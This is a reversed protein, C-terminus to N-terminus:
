PESAVLIQPDIAKVYRAGLVSKVRHQEAHATLAGAAVGCMVLVAVYVVAAQPRNFVQAFAQLRHWWSAPQSNTELHAIRQWVGDQFRPPMAADLKWERLAESLPDEHKKLGSM